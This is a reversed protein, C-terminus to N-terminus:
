EIQYDPLIEFKLDAVQEANLNGDVILLGQDISKIVGWRDRVHIVRGVMNDNQSISEKPFIKTEYRTDDFLIDRVFGEIAEGLGIVQDYNDKGKNTWQDDVNNETIIWAEGANKGVDIAGKPNERIINNRIIGPQFYAFLNMFSVGAAEGNRAIVNKELEM